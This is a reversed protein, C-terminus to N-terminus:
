ATVEQLDREDDFRKSLDSFFVLSIIAGGVLSDLTELAAGVAPTVSPGSLTTLLLWGMWTGVYLIRAPWWYNILGIWAVLTTVAIGLLLPFLVFDRPRWEGASSYARLPQPLTSSLAFEAGITLMVLVFDAVVLILLLRDNRM